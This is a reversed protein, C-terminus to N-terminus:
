TDVGIYELSEHFTHSIRYAPGDLTSSNLSDGDRVPSGNALRNTENHFSWCVRKCHSPARIFLTIFSSAGRRTAALVDLFELLSREAEYSSQEPVRFPELRCM